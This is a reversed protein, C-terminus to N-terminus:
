GYEEYLYVIVETDVHTKFNYGLSILEERLQQFNYIEGNFVTCINGRDNFIPQSGHELDLISLRRMALGVDDSLFIGDEDPGRHFISQNMKKLIAESNEPLQGAFGCIGCM